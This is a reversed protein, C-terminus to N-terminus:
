KRSTWNIGDSGSKFDTNEITIPESISHQQSKNIKTKKITLSAQNAPKKRKPKEVTFIFKTTVSDPKLYIRQGVILKIFCNTDFHSSCVYSKKNVRTNKGHLKVLWQPLLNKNSLPLLHWSLDKCEVKSSRNQCRFAICHKVM